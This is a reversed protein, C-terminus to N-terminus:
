MDKLSKAFCRPFFDNPARNESIGEGIAERVREPQDNKVV